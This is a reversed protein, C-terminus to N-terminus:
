DDAEYYTKVNFTQGEKLCSKIALFMLRNQEEEYADKLVESDEFKLKTIIEFWRILQRHEKWKAYVVSDSRNIETTSNNHGVFHTETIWM